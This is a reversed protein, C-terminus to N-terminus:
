MEEPEAERLNEMNLDHKGQTANHEDGRRVFTTNKKRMQYAEKQTCKLLSQDWEIRAITYL